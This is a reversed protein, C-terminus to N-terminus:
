QSHLTDFPTLLEVAVFASTNKLGRGFNLMVITAFVFTGLLLVIAIVATSGTNTVNCYGTTLVRVFHQFRCTFLKSSRRGHRIVLIM